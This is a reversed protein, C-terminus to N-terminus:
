KKNKMLEKIRREKYEEDRLKIENRDMDGNHLIKSIPMKYIMSLGDKTQIPQLDLRKVEHLWNEKSMGVFSYSTKRNTIDERKFVYILITDPNELLGTRSVKFEDNINRRQHTELAVNGTQQYQIHHSKAEIPQESLMLNLRNEADNGKKNQKKFNGIFDHNTDKWDKNLVGSTKDLIQLLQYHEEANIRDGDAVDKDYYLNDIIKKLYKKSNIM